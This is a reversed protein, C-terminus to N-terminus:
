KISAEQALRIGVQVGKIFSAKEYASCLACTADIIEETGDNAFLDLLSYLLEFSSKMDDTEPHNQERYYDYLIELVSDCDDVNRCISPMM